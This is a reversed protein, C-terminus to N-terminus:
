LGKRSLDQGARLRRETDIFKHIQVNRISSIMFYTAETDEKM